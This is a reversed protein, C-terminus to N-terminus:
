KRSRLALTVRRVQPDGPEAAEVFGLKACLRLMPANTALVFGVMSELGRARAVEILRRMMIAGLKGQWADAVVIAFECSKGDPLTAYRCVGIEREEGAKGALAVFAMERDYDIQTFRALMSPTLTHMASHFRQRMTEPCLAAIFAAELEADEPRIPRLAVPTGDALGVESALDAPYPHIALHGYRALGPPPARVVIRADLALVGSEDAVLPNIDLEELEPLETAMESVRLLVGVLAERDVAPLNRFRDLMRSVKTGRIMDEVLTANLPPLAVARDRLVEIAIGGAGFTIVPGFVPDRAIGAMLELAHPRLVMPEISVGAIRAEPKSSAVEAMMEEYAKRLSPADPIGLRVGGVDSKHTIDPSRIKM